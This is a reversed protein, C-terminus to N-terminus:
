GSGSGGRTQAGVESAAEVRAMFASSILDDVQMFLADEGTDSYYGSQAGAPFFGFRRYLERARLNSVRVELTLTVLRREVAARCLDAMLRTGIGFGQVDPHVALTTVHGRDAVMMLGAHGVVRGDVEAVRNVRTEPLALQQRLFSPSWSRPYVEEDIALVAGLDAAVM